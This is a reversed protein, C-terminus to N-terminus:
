KKEKAALENAENIKAVYSNWVTKSVRGIAWIEDSLEKVFEGNKEALREAKNLTFKPRTVGEIITWYVFLAEDTTSIQTEKDVVTAKQNIRIMQEFTLARVRFKKEWGAIRIDTEIIDDEQLLEDANDYYPTEEPFRDVM